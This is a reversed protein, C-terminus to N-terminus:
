AVARVLDVGLRFPGGPYLALPLLVPGLILVLGIGLRDRRTM